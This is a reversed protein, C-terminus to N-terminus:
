ATLWHEGAPPIVWGSDELCSTVPRGTSRALNLLALAKSLCLLDECLLAYVRQCDRLLSQSLTGCAILVRVSEQHDLEEDTVPDTVRQPEVLRVFEHFDMHVPSPDNEDADALRVISEEPFERNALQKIAQSETLTGTAVLNQLHLAKDVQDDSLLSSEVLVEGLKKRKILSTEVACVLDGKSILRAAILLEGLHITQRSQPAFFSNRAQRESAAKLASLGGPRTMKWDRVLGQITLAAKLLGNSIAGVKVLFQGLLLGSPECTLLYHELQKRSIVEADVLLDGLRNRNKESGSDIDLQQIADRLTSREDVVIKLVKVSQDRTILGDRFLSQLEVASKLVEESILGEDLLIQGVPSGRLKAKILAGFADTQKVAGSRTLLEGLLLKGSHDIAM